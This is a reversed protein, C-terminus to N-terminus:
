PSPFRLHINVAEGGAAQNAPQAFVNVPFTFPASISAAILVTVLEIAAFCFPNCAAPLAFAKWAAISIKNILFPLTNNCPKCFADPDDPRIFKIVVNFGFESAGNIIM